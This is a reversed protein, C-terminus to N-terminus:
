GFLRLLAPDVVRGDFGDAARRSFQQRDAENVPRGDKLPDVEILLAHPHYALAQQQRAVLTLEVDGYHNRYGPHFLTGGYLGLAWERHAMGFGALQGFWKGDNFALLRARPTASVAQLACQLWHRGPFADQAAYVVWNASLRILVENMLAMPGSRADDELCLVHCSAGARRLMVASAEEAQARDTWPLLITVETPDRTGLDSLTDTSGIESGRLWLRSSPAPNSASVLPVM